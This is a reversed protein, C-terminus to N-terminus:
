GIPVLRGDRIGWHNGYPIPLYMAHKTDRRILKGDPPVILTREILSSVAVVWSHFEWGQATRSRDEPRIRDAFRARLDDVTRQEKDDLEQHFPIEDFSSIAIEGVGYAMALGNCEVAYLKANSEDELGTPPDEAAVEHLHELHRSLVRIVRANAAVYVRRAPFPLPSQVDLIRHQLFWPLEILEVELFRNLRDSFEPADRDVAVKLRSLEEATLQIQAPQTM